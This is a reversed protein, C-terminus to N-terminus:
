RSRCRVFAPQRAGSIDRILLDVRSVVLQLQIIEELVFTVDSKSAQVDKQRFHQDVDGIFLLQGRDRRSIEITLNGFEHMSM